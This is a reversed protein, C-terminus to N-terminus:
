RKELAEVRREIDEMRAEMLKHGGLDRHADLKAEVASLGTIAFTNERTVLKLDVIERELLRFGEAMTDRVDVHMAWVIGLAALVGGGQYALSKKGQTSMKRDSREELERLAALAEHM